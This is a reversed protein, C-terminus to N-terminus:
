EAAHDNGGNQSSKMMAIFRDFLFGTDLPGASAEPHFQVSFAPHDLYEVGECTGDNLNIFSEKAEEPLSSAEVAYGHNQSTMYIRDTALEKVPQNAGRHGYRLKSTKGGHALALLQHGLCIGFMPLDSSECLKRLESIIGTNEQPDGPGNSLMLGDVQMRKIEDATAAYPLVTVWCGRKRLERVINEKAGFDWLAVRYQAGTLPYEKYRGKSAHAVAERVRFSKIKSQLATLMTEPTPKEYTLLGNMTGQERLLKTLRRTDIGYVAPINRAKFFTDLDGESRFNSPTRCWEKVIYASLHPKESEFDSPIVGYNGILPFTQVVIQGYYSPDTITELYGTMGTTFVVEGTVGEAGLPAGFSKGELYQGNELLLYVTKDM